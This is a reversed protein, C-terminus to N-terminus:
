KDYEKPKVPKPVPIPEKKASGGDKSDGFPKVKIKKFFERLAKM